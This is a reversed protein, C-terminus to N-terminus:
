NEIPTLYQLSFYERPDTWVKRIEFWPSVLKRFDTLSYKYSNETHISEGPKMQISEGAIHVTIARKAILYMEIRSKDENWVASHDFDDTNFDTGIERNIHDLMNKNFASTIGMSDNYAKLLVELDKKLDVGILFGGEDGILNRIVNFFRTATEPEFNGITSGPFFVIKRATSYMEPLRISNTYDAVVPEIAIAPYDKRLQDAVKKLYEGSIDMPVYCCISNMNDLLIRTKESSGSGPEILMIKEGLHGSIDDLNSELIMRETRTLYYEELETIEDFLRSGEKDYFYKSPLYKPQSRLGELVETLMIKNKDTNQDTM